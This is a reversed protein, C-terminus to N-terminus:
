LDRSIIYAAIQRLPEAGAGFETLAEIGQEM